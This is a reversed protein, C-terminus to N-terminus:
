EPPFLGTEWAWSAVAEEMYKIFSATLDQFDTQHEIAQWWFMAM